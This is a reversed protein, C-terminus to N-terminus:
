VPMSAYFAFGVAENFGFKIGREWAYFKLPIKFFLVMIAYARLYRCPNFVMSEIDFNYFICSLSKQDDIKIKPM